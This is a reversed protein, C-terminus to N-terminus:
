RRDRQNYVESRDRLCDSLRYFEKMRWGSLLDDISISWNVILENQVPDYMVNGLHAGFEDADPFAVFLARMSAKDIERNAFLFCPQPPQETEGCVRWLGTKGRRSQEEANEIDSTFVSEIQDDFRAYGFLVVLRNLLTGDPLEVYGFVEGDQIEGM